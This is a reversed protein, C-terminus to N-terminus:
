VALELKTIRVVETIPFMDESGRLKPNAKMRVMGAGWSVGVWHGRQTEAVTEVEVMDGYRLHDIVAMLPKKVEHRQM